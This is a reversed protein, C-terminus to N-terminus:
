PALEDFLAGNGAFAVRVEALLVDTEAPSLVLEDLQARYRRKADVVSGLEAPFRAFSLQDPTAGYHRAVLAAVAQGGSLDGLYRAYHHALYRITHDTPEASNILARLHAAYAATAPSAPHTGRWDPAGLAVLDSEISPMRVLRPAFIATGDAPRSELAEYVWALQALSRTYADLSLEGGMLRTIFPRSETDRHDDASASRILSSLPTPAILTM